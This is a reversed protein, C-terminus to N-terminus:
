KSLREQYEPVISAELKSLETSLSVSHALMIRISESIFLIVPELM